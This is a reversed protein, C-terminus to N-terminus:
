FSLRHLLRRGQGETDERRDAAEEIDAVDSRARLGTRSKAILQDPRHEQRRDDDGKQDLHGAPERTRRPLRERVRDALVEAEGEPEHREDDESQNVKKHEARFDPPDTERQV